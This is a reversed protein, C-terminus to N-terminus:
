FIVLKTKLAEKDSSVTLLYVGPNLSNKKLMYQNGRFRTNLVEEGAANYLEVQYQDEHDLSIITYDNMPNPHVSLDKFKVDKTSVIEISQCDVEEQKKLQEFKSNVLEEVTVCADTTADASFVINLVPQASLSKEIKTDNNALIIIRGNSSDFHISEPMFDPALIEVGEVSVGEVKLQIGIVDTNSNTMSLTMTNNTVDTDSIAILPEALQNYIGAPFACHDHSTSGDPHEHTNGNIMCDMLLSADYLTVTGDANLDNCASAETATLAANIYQNIDLGSLVGDEDLDGRLASGNCDGKCDLEAKGYINGLCDYYPDCDDVQTMQLSGSARSLNICVQAWNNLSDKEMQGLADPANDWNVRTVFTYDGDPVDTIDIWQCDLYSDYIDTCGSSIGMYNCSYKYMDFSPCDLDIVCFGNKFGIPIYQGYADYLVYEAYGDYHYHQHCEDYEFQEPNSAPEGIFYDADGANHITTRFNIVDRMGYGRMCGENILCPDDNFQQKVVMTSKLDGVDLVLDPSPCDDGYLCSGDDATAYPNYNCATSDMCGMIPGAYSIYISDTACEGQFDAVRILYSNGAIMVGQVEAEIGCEGDDAFFSTGEHGDAILLGECDDYIWIRSDCVNGGCTSVEYIGNEDPAFIMWTGTADYAYGGENVMLAEACSQGPGCNAQVSVADTFDTINAVVENDVILKVYANGAFGDSYSDRITFTMCTSDSICLTDQYLTLNELGSSMALLQGQGDKIDWSTEVAYQDTKLEVVVMLQDENCNQAFAISVITSLMCILPLLKKMTNSQKITNTIRKDALLLLIYKIILVIYM